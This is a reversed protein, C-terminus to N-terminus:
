PYIALVDRWEAWTYAGCTCRISPDPPELPWDSSTGGSRTTWSFAHNGARCLTSKVIPAGELKPDNM